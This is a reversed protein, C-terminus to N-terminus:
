GSDALLQAESCRNVRVKGQEAVSHGVVLTNLAHRRALIDARDLPRCLGSGRGGENQSREKQKDAGSLRSPM